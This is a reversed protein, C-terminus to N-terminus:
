ALWLMVISGFYLPQGLNGVSVQICSVSAPRQPTSMVLIHQFPPAAEFVDFSGGTVIVAAEGAEVSIEINNSNTHPRCAPLGTCGM